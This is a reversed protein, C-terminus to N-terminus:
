PKRIHEPIYFVDDLYHKKDKISYKYKSIFQLSYDEQISITHGIFTKLLGLDLEIPLSLIFEETGRIYLNNDEISKLTIDGINFRKKLTEILTFQKM